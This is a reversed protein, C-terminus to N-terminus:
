ATPPGTRDAAKERLLLATVLLAGSTPLMILGITFQWFGLLFVGVAGTITPVFREFYAGVAGIWGILIVLAFFVLRSLQYGPQPLLAVLILTMVSVMVISAGKAIDLTSYQKM